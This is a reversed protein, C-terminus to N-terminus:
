HGGEIAIWKIAGNLEGECYVLISARFTLGLQAATTANLVLEFKTPQEISLDGPKAGKLIRVVYLRAASRKRLVHPRGTRDTWIAERVTAMWFAWVAAAHRRGVLTNKSAM